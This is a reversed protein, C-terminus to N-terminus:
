CLLLLRYVLLGLDSFRGIYDSIVVSDGGVLLGTFNPLESGIVLLEPM